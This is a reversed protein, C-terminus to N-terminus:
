RVNDKENLLIADKLKIYSNKRDFKEEACKRSNQGMISRLDNDDILQKIKEALDKANDNECNFGMQYEDILRRYEESEQTNLVPLGSAAYDAHKNIISQAAMHMIPNVTIDCASLLSCMQDYQLRGVFIANINKSYAYERFENLRPGDGMVVFKIRNDDLISLADIVCRIDYSAGLTGCYAIWYENKDKDIIPCQKSYEDFIKLETGLFVTVGRNCKKNVKMARCVYTDSVGCIVDARKYIENVKKKFPAFIIDSVIPINFVMQFAEPWLDQVDIVFKVGNKECYKAARLPGELSPISTYIVDPKKRQKLYRNVQRGWMYHSVFRKLCINKPYGIEDLFTVKYSLDNPFNTRENKTIHYFKSTIVEVENDKALLNALYSFRGNDSKSFDMTFNALIVIDM